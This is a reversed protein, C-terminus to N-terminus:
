GAVARWFAEFGVKTYRRAHAPERSIFEMTTEAIASMIAVIFASSQDKLVGGAACERLTGSIEAFEDGMVKRTKDTVRDSVQLQRLAKRKDPNASGWRVFCDWVHRGRDVLSQGAPYDAMMSEHLDSKLALYLHNLLEDKTAFYTFLTGEAVGAVKSIKATPASVGYEAVVQAAADLIASRKDESRPRAM